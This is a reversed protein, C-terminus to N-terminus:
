HYVYFNSLKNWSRSPKCIFSVHWLWLFGLNKRVCPPDRFLMMQMGGMNRGYHNSCTWLLFVSSNFRIVIQFSYKVNEKTITNKQNKSQVVFQELFGLGQLFFYYSWHNRDEWHHSPSLTKKKVSGLSCCPWGYPYDRQNWACNTSSPLTASLRDPM